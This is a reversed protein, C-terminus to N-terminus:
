GIVLCIRRSCSVPSTTGSHSKIIKQKDGDAFGWMVLPYQILNPHVLDDLYLDNEKIPKATTIYLKKNMWHLKMIILAVYCHIYPM